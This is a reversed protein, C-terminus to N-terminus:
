LKRRLNYKGRRRWLYFCPWRWWGRRDPSWFADMEFPKTVDNIRFEHNSHAGVFLVFLDPTLFINMGRFYRKPPNRTLSKSLSFFYEQGWPWRHRLWRLRPVFFLHKKKCMRAHCLLFEFAIHRVSVVRDYDKEECSLFIFVTIFNNQGRWISLELNGPEIQRPGVKNQEFYRTVSSSCLTFQRVHAVWKQALYLLFKSVFHKMDKVKLM